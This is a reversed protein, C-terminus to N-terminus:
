RVWGRLRDTPHHHQGQDAPQVAGPVPVPAPPSNPPEQSLLEHRELLRQKAAPSGEGPQATSAKHKHKGAGDGSGQTRVDMHAGIMPQAAAAPQMQAAGAATDHADNAGFSTVVAGHTHNPPRKRPSASPRESPHDHLRKHPCVFLQKCLRKRPRESPCETRANLCPLTHIPTPRPLSICPPQPAAHPAHRHSGIRTGARWGRGPHAGCMIRGRGWV